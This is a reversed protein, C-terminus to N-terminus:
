MPNTRKQLLARRRSILIAAFIGVSAGLVMRTAVPSLGLPASLLGLLLGLGLAFVLLVAIIPGWGILRANGAAM